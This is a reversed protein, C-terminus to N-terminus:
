GDSPCFIPRGVLNTIKKVISMQTSSKFLYIGINWHEVDMVMDCKFLSKMPSDDLLIDDMLCYLVIM